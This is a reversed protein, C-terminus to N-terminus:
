PLAQVRQLHSPLGRAVWILMPLSNPGFCNPLCDLVMMCADDTNSVQVEAVLHPHLLRTMVLKVLWQQALM